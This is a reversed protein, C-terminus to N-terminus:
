RNAGPQPSEPYPSLCGLSTLLDEKLLSLISCVVEEFPYGLEVLVAKKAVRKPMRTTGKRGRRREEERVGVEDDEQDGHPRPPPPPTSFVHEVRQEIHQEAGATAWPPPSPQRSPADGFAVSEPIGYGVDLPKPSSWLSLIVTWGPRIVAEWVEPLIVDGNSSLLDYKEEVIESQVASADSRSYAREILQKIGQLSL